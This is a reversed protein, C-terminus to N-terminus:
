GPPPTASRSRSRNACSRSTGPTRSRSGGRGRGGWTRRGRCGNPSPPSGSRPCSLDHTAHPESWRWSDFWANGTAGSPSGWVVGVARAFAANAPAVARFTRDQWTDVTPTWDPELSLGLLVFDTDFWHIQRRPHLNTTSTRSEAAVAYTTGAGVPVFYASEIQTLTAAPNGSNATIAAKISGAVAGTFVAADYTWAATVGGATFTSSWSSIGGAYEANADVLWNGEYRRVATSQAVARWTPDVVLFVVRLGHEGDPPAGHPVEVVADIGVVTGDGRLGVLRRPTPDSPDLRGVLTDYAEDIDLTTPLVFDLVIRREGVRLPGFSGVGGAPADLLDHENRWQDRFADFPNIAAFGQGRWDWGDFGAYEVIAV